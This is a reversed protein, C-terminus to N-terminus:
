HDEKVPLFRVRGIWHVDDDFVIERVVNRGGMGYQEGVSCPVNRIESAIRGLANWDVFEIFKRIGTKKEESWYGAETHWTFKTFKHEMESPTSLYFIVILPLRCLFQTTELNIPTKTERKIVSIKTQPPLNGCATFM